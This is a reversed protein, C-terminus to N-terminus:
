KKLEYFCHVSVDVPLNYGWPPHWTPRKVAKKQSSHLVL